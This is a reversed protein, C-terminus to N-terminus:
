KDVVHPDVELPLHAALDLFERDQAGCKDEGVAEAEKVLEAESATEIDLKDM